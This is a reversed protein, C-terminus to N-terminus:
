LALRTTQKCLTTVKIILGLKLSYIQKKFTEQIIAKTTQLAWKIIVRDIKFKVQKWTKNFWVLRRCKCLDTWNCKQIPSCSSTSSNNVSINAKVWIKNELHFKQLKSKIKMLWRKSLNPNATVTLLFAKNFKVM